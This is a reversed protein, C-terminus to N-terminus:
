QGDGVGASKEDAYEFTYSSAEPTTTEAVAAVPKSAVGDTQWAEAAPSHEAVAMARRARFYALVLDGAVFLALGLPLISVKSLRPSDAFVYDMGAAVAVAGAVFSSKMGLESKTKKWSHQAIATRASYNALDRLTGLGARIETSDPRPKSVHEVTKRISQDLDDINGLIEEELDPTSPSVSSDVNGASPVGDPSETEAWDEKGAVSKSEGSESRLRALLDHIYSQMNGDQHSPDNVNQPGAAVDNESRTVARDTGAENSKASLRDNAAVRSGEDLGVGLLEDLMWGESDTPNGWSSGAVRGDGVTSHSGDTEMRAASVVQQNAVATEAEPAQSLLQQSEEFVETWAKVEAEFKAREAEFREREVQLRSLEADLRQREATVSEHDAVPQSEVAELREREARLRQQEIHFAQRDAELRTLEDRLRAHETQLAETDGDLQQRQEDLLRVLTQLSEEQERCDEQRRVLEEAQRRVAEHDHQVQDPTPAVPQRKEDLEQRERELGRREAEIERRLSTEREQLAQERSEVEQRRSELRQQQETLEVSRSSVARREIDFGQQWDDKRFNLEREIQRLNQEQVVLQESNRVFEAERADLSHQRTTLEVLRSAVASAVEAAQAQQEAALRDREDFEARQRDLEAQRVELSHAGEALRQRRSEIEDQTAAADNSWEERLRALDREAQEAAQRRVILEQECSVADDTAQAIRKREADLEQRTAELQQRDTALQGRETGIQQREIDLQRREADVRATWEDHSLSREREAAEFTQQRGALQQEGQALAAQEVAFRQRDTELQHRDADLQQRTADLERNSADSRASWEDRARALELEARELASRQETLQVELRDAAASRDALQQQASEAERRQETVEALRQSLTTLSLQLAQERDALRAEAQQVEVQRRDLDAARGDLDQQWTTLAATREGLEHQSSQRAAEVADRQQALGQECRMLDDQQAALKQENGNLEERRSEVDLEQQQVQEVRGTLDRFANEVSTQLHRVAADRLNLSETATALTASQDTLRRECAATEAALRDLESARDELQRGVLEIQRTQAVLNENLVAIRALADERECTAQEIRSNLETERQGLTHERAVLQRLRTALERDDPLTRQSGGSPPEARPVKATSTTPSRFMDGVSAPLIGEAVARRVSHALTQSQDSDDRTLPKRVNAAVPSGGAEVDPKRVTAPAFQPAVRHADNSAAENAHQGPVYQVLEEPTAYRVTLEVPGFALRDGARLETERVPLDMVWTRQDWATLIARNKGSLIVAHHEAVGQVAIRLQCDPASGIV